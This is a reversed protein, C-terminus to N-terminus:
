IQSMAFTKSLRHPEYNKAYKKSLNDTAGELEEDFRLVKAHGDNMVGDRNLHTAGELVDDGDTCAKDVTELQAVVALYKM